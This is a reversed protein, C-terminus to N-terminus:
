LKTKYITKVGVKFKGDQLEFEDNENIEELNILKNDKSIQAYFNSLKKSPHNFKFAENLSKIENEKKMIILSLNQNLSKKIEPILNRNKDILFKLNKNFREKLEVIERQFYEVKAEVRNQTFSKKLYNLEEEKKHLVRNFQMNFKEILNDIYFLLEDKDPLIIEIANSPTSARIDAVMDSILLDSEHGIASVILTKANFIAEAVIEENFAWLDEKSGGGRGLIIVDANLSDAIKISNVIDQKANEGQMLTDILTIKSLAFRKNAIKLMDAVAASQSASIIVIHNIFKTLYKKHTVDFYGKQALKLKLEEYKKSLDGIGEKLINICLINYEGRPTYVNLKGDILIHLGNEIKFKLNYTYNKFMVCKIISSEDKLSFYIHGSTHIILNSVEGKIYVNEFKIENYTKFQNNFHSVSM